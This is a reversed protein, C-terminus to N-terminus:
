AGALDDRLKELDSTDGTDVAKRHADRLRKLVAQQKAPALGRILKILAIILKIIEFFSM